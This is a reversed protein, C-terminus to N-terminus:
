RWLGSWFSRRASIRELAAQLEEDYDARNAVDAMSIIGLLRDNRDVVPVRRVQREGMLAVVATLEEEGTVAEVDATMVDRVRLDGAGKGEAISRIVIDRDTVVGRLRREEDVVPVIGCNESKMIEAVDRLSADPAVSKVDRTMIERATVAERQWRTRRGARERNADPSVAGAGGADAYSGFTSGREFAQYGYEREQDGRPERSEAGEDYGQEVYGGVRTEGSHSVGRQEADRAQPPRDRYAPSDRVEGHSGHESPFEGRVDGPVRTAGYRRQDDLRRAARGYFSSRDHEAADHGMEDEDSERNMEGAV